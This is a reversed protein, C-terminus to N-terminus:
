STELVFCHECSGYSYSFENEARKSFLLVNYQTIIKSVNGEGKKFYTKGIDKGYHWSLIIIIYIVHNTTKYHYANCLLHWYYLVRRYWYVFINKESIYGRGKGKGTKTFSRIWVIYVIYLSLFFPGLIHFESSVSQLVNKGKKGEGNKM